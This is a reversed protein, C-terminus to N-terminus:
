TCGEDRPRARTASVLLLIYTTLRRGQDAFRCKTINKYEYTKKKVAACVCFIDRRRDQTIHSSTNKIKKLWQRTHAHQHELFSFFICNTRNHLGRKREKAPTACAFNLYFIVPHKFYFIGPKLFGYISTETQRVMVVASHGNKKLIMKRM